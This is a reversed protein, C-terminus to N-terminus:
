FKFSFLHIRKGYCLNIQNKFFVVFVFHSFFSFSLMHRVPNVINKILHKAVDAEGKMWRLTAEELVCEAELGGNSDGGMAGGEEGNRRMVGGSGVGGDGGKVSGRFSYGHSAMKFSDAGVYGSGVGGGMLQKLKMMTSEAFQSPLNHVNHM